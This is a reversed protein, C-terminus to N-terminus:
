NCGFVPHNFIFDYKPGDNGKLEDLTYLEEETVYINENLFQFQGKPSDVLIIVNNGKILDHLPSDTRLDIFGGSKAAEQNIWKMAKRTATAEGFVDISRANSFLLKDHGGRAGNTFCTRHMFENTRATNFYITDETSAFWAGKNRRCDEHWKLAIEPYNDGVFSLEVFMLELLVDVNRIRGDVYLTFYSRSGDDYTEFKGSIGVIDKYTSRQKFKEIIGHITIDAPAYGSTWSLHRKM